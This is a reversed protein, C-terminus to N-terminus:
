ACHHTHIQDFARQHTSATDILKLNKTDFCKHANFGNFGMLGGYFGM